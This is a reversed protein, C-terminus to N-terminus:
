SRRIALNNRGNEFTLLPALFLVRHSDSIVEVHLAARNAKYMGFSQADGRSAVNVYKKLNVRPIRERETTFSEVLM